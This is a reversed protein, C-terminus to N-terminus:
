GETELAGGRITIQRDHWRALTSRHGVSVVTRGPEATLKEYLKMEMDEDMASTAEDLFVWKPKRLFIRVFALRQQEGLSLVHSWDRAEDLHETLHALGCFALLPALAADDAPAGPYSAAEQLTGIPMYPKQPIFMTEEKRPSIIEGSAYPWFGALVRLLTSKGAGSPGKILVKEGAAIVCDAGSILRRGGPLGIDVRRLAAEDAETRVLGGAAAAAERELARVHSDFTLLRDACARWEALAAYIDVFYSMSEQVKGFCNGIQMLGGLSIEKALYRPAAVVFPFIIAIQGYSNTLWSLQKQKRIILVTNSLVLLFRRLLLSKEKAAGDYFAVSEATDRLRVMGFRFDAEYRQQDFNLGTLRKGVRHTLWTGAASYFLAAWVLYGHIAYTEGGITVSLPGSLDWLVFIFCFITVVAKFLGMAFSLTNATFLRIDESIRQDPNDAGPLFMEMRYYVQRGTWKELYERTMWNRWRLSLCQQLYFAYVSFAIYAFALGTFRLLGSYVADADYAQLASYFDNFWDNLLLMMYVAAGTLIIIGALYLAATRREGGMWYAATLRFLRGAWEGNWGDREM